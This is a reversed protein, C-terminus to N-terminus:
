AISILDFLVMYLIYDNIESPFILIVTKDDLGKSVFDFLFLISGREAGLKIEFLVSVFFSTIAKFSVEFSNDLWIDVWFLNKLKDRKILVFKEIKLSLKSRFQDNM